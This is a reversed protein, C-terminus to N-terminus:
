IIGSQNDHRRFLRIFRIYSGNMWRSMSLFLGLIIVWYVDVLNNYLNMELGTYLLCWGIFHAALAAISLPILCSVIVSKLCGRLCVLLFVTIVEMVMAAVLLYLPSAILLSLFYFLFAISTYLLAPAAEDRKVFATCLTLLILFLETGM